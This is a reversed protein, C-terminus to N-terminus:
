GGGGLTKKNNSTLLHVNGRVQVRVGGGGGSSNRGLVGGGGSSNRPGGRVIM